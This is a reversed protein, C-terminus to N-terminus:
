QGQTILRALLRELEPGRARMSVVRGDRGILIPQPIANVGYRDVLTRSDQVNICSWPLRQTDAFKTIAEDKRDLSVGIVAFGRHQYKEHATIINPIEAVCPGCWTAWFDVLVVKGKLNKLDFHQGDTTRGAIELEKGVMAFKRLTSELAQVAAAVKKDAAGAFIRRFTACTEQAFPLDNEDLQCFLRLASQADKITLQDGRDQLQRALDKVRQKREAAAPDLPIKTRPASEAQEKQRKQLEERERIQRELEKTRPASEAQEKQRKKLEERALIQREREAREKRQQEVEPEKRANLEQESVPNEDIRKVSEIPKQKPERPEEKAAVAAEPKRISVTPSHRDVLLPITLAFASAFVVGFIVGSKM